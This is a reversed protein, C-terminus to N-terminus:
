KSFTVTKYTVSKCDTLAGDGVKVLAKLRDITVDLDVCGSFAKAGITTVSNPIFIKKLGTCYYFAYDDITTVSSPIVVSKLNKYSDFLGYGIGTVTYIKGDIRVQEPIILSDITKDECVTVTMETEGDGPIQEYTFPTDSADALLIYDNFKVSSCNKFPEKGLFVSDKSNLISVNLNNCDLFVRLGISDVSAPITINELKGCGSFAWDEIIKVNEPIVVNTLNTCNQLVIADISRINEPFVFKTLKECGYFAGWEISTVGSPINIEELAKCDSFARGSITTLSEPLKVSTLKECNDFAGVGITTTGEPLEISSLSTYTFVYEGFKPTGKIEVKNLSYNWRFAYDGLTEVSEPIVVNELSTGSFAEDGIKVVGEPIVIDHLAFVGSFAWDGIELLGEPLVVRKLQEQEFFAKEGISTVDYINAGIQVKSPIIVSDLSKYSEDSIVEATGDSLIKFKLPTESEKVVTTEGTTFSVEEVHYSKYKVVSGDKLKVNIIDTALMPTCLGFAAILIFLKEKM